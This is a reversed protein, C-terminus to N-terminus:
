GGGELDSGEVWGNRVDFAKKLDVRSAQIDPTGYNQQQNLLSFYFALAHDKIKHVDDTVSGDPLKCRRITNMMRRGKISAYFFCTNDDTQMLWHQKARQKAYSDEMCLSQLYDERAQKEKEAYDDNMPDVDLKEQAIHFVKTASEVKHHIEGFEMRNWVKLAAKVARLKQYLVFLPSGLVQSQWAQEVTPLFNDHQAWMSFYRFPKPGGAVAEETFITLQTHDSHFKDGYSVYSDSFKDLWSQNILARDLRCAIRRAGVSRNSWSMTSGVSKLDLLSSHDICNNFDRLLSPTLKRGGIKEEPFRVGIGPGRRVKGGGGVLKGSTAAHIQMTDHRSPSSAFPPPGDCGKVENTM